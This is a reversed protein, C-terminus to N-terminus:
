SIGRPYVANKSKFGIDVPQANSQDEYEEGLGIKDLRSVLESFCSVGSM